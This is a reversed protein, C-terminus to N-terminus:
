GKRGRAARGAGVGRAATEGVRWRQVLEWQHEPDNPPGRGHSACMCQCCHAIVIIYDEGTGTICGSLFPSPFFFFFSFFFPLSGSYWRATFYRGHHVHPQRKKKRKRRAFARSLKIRRSSKVDRIFFFFIAIVRAANESCRDSRSGKAEPVFLSALDRQKLCRQARSRRM